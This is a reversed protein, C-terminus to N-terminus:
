GHSEEKELSAPTIALTSDTPILAAEDQPELIVDGSYLPPPHAGWLVVNPIRLVALTVARKGPRLVTAKAVNQGTPGRLYGSAALDNYLIGTGPLTVGAQTLVPCLVKFVEPVVVLTQEPLVFVQGPFQNVRLTGDRCAQALATLVQAALTPQVPPLTRLDAQVSQRDAAVTNALPSPATLLQRFLNAPDPAGSLFCWLERAVPLTLTTLDERTLLLTAALAGATEHRMGRGPQWTITPTPLAGETQQAFLWSLLAEHLPDWPTLSSPLTVTVDFVKGV